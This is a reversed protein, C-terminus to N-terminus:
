ARANASTAKPYSVIFGVLAGFIAPVVWGMGQSYLPLYKYVNTIFSLNLGFQMLADVISIAAVCSLSGIYVSSSGNFFDNALSLIILTTAIPYIATLAPVSILLIKTLGMNAFVMSSVALITVWTKYTVKPVLTVFYQSCSTILGVCTTLCALSFILGLLVAGPKGFLYLVVNTLTQAGNKTLGFKPGASAGLYALMVYIFALFFGAILGAKISYSVLSKEESIGKQRLALSIVIGFNLAAIADMTMYGELFGKLFPFSAYDSQPVGFSGMPKFLSCVFISTILILLVPTLIKGFRDVLKSPTLCLWFALSFFCLTYIFLPLAGKASIFPAIGMEFALSGARPIGLFPGIALYIIITFIIAFTPHVRSALAHLGGAKSITVVALIPLGVASFVFGALAVWTSSGASQGLFPPFILNGAGFFMSFLMLSIFMLDKKSLSKM